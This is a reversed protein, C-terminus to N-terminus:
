SPAILQLIQAPDDILYDPRLCELQARARFGWSVLACDLGASRATQFDVESDGVYLTRAPNAHLQAMLQLVGDPAPKRPIGAREGYAVPILASFFHRYLLQTAGDPKNSLIGTAIKQTKLAQLMSVIGPYPATDLMCHEAYYQRFGQLVQAFAPHEAGGPLSGALLQTAGNGLSRKIHELSQPPRGYRGIADNVAGAIDSLTDLLTGDLDFLITSYNM